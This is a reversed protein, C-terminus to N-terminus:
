PVPLPQPVLDNAFSYNGLGASPSQYSACGAALFAAGCLLLKWKM